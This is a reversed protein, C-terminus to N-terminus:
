VTFGAVHRAHKVLNHTASNGLRRPHSFSICNVDTTAKALALIHGFPSLSDENCKLAKIVLEFDGEM